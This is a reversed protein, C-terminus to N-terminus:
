RYKLMSQLLKRGYIYRHTETPLITNRAKESKLYLKRTFNDSFTTRSKLRYGFLMRQVGTQFVYAGTLQLYLSDDIDTINETFDDVRELRFM